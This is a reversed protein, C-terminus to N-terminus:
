VPLIELKSRFTRNKNDATRTAVCRFKYTGPTLVDLEDADWAVMVNPTNTSLSGTAGTIGSSKTILAVDYDNLIMVVFTYGSSFDILTGLSDKWFLGADGLEDGPPYILSM